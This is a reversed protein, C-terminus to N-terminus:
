SIFTCDNVSVVIEKTFKGSDNTELVHYLVLSNTSCFKRLYSGGSLSVDCCTVYQLEFVFCYNTIAEAM